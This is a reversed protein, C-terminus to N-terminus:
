SYLKDMNTIHAASLRVYDVLCYAAIGFAVAVNLSEKVGHMPLHCVLDCLSLAEASVGTVENGVILCLPAKIISEGLVDILSSSSGTRELGIVFVKKKKLSSLVDIVYPHYEWRVEEEAGLSTKKIENRPPCGTIGCLYLQSFGAGDATRFISGVNWLSRIDELLASFQPKGPTKILPGGSIHGQKQRRKYELEIQQLVSLEQFTAIQGCKPCHGTSKGATGPFEFTYLCDPQPCKTLM